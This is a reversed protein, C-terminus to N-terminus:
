HKNEYSELKYFQPQKDKKLHYEPLCVWKGVEIINNYDSRTCIGNLRGLWMIGRIDYYGNTFNSFRPIIMKINKM